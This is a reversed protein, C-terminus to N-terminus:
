VGSIESVAWFTSAFAAIQYPYVSLGFARVIATVVLSVALPYYAEVGM